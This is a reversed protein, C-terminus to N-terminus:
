PWPVFSRSAFPPSALPIGLRGYVALPVGIDAVTVDGTVDQAGPAGLGAKPLALTLTADARICAGPRDGTTSDLGSPVDIALIPRNAANAAEILMETTGHPAGNLSFGLLGDLIVDAGSLDPAQHDPAAPMINMKALITAQHAAPGKLDGPKHTLHVGVEAGWAALLRAAVMGDGGNGGSGCLAIVQKGRADGGLFRNRAFAAVAFGALEMLQLTEVGFEGTMLKDVQAMQAATLAPLPLTRTRESTM